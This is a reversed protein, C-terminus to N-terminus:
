TLNAGTSGDPRKSIVSSPSAAVKHPAAVSSCSCFPGTTTMRYTVFCNITVDIICLTYCLPMPQGQVGAIALSSLNIATSVLSLLAGKVNKLAVQQVVAVARKSHYERGPPEGQVKKRSLRWLIRFFQLTMASTFITDYVALPLSAKATMIIRCGDSTKQSWGFCYMLLLLGAFPMLLLFNIRYARSKLRKVRSKRTAIFVKETMFVYTMIKTSAYLFICTLYALDCSLEYNQTVMHILTAFCFLLSMGLLCLCLWNGVKNQQNKSSKRERLTHVRSVLLGTIVLSMVYAFLCALQLEGTITLGSAGNASVTSMNDAQSAEEGSDAAAEGARSKRKPKGTAPQKTVPTAATKRSGLGDDAVATVAPRSPVAVAMCTLHTASGARLTEVVTWQDEDDDDEQRYHLIKGNSLAVYFDKDNDVSRVARIRHGCSVTRTLKGQADFLRLDGNDLGAMVSGIATCQVANVRGRCDLVHMPKGTADRADFVLVTREDGVVAYKLGDPSWTAMDLVKFKELRHRSAPRANELNWMRLSNDKSTSLAASGSPHVAISTVPGPKHGKLTSVLNWDKCRWLCLKGDNGGSLLFKNGVFAVSLVTDEHEVLEVRERMKSLSYVKVVEDTGGSAMLQEGDDGGAGGVGSVALCKACSQHAKYAFVLESGGGAEDRWGHLSGDYCAAAVVVM